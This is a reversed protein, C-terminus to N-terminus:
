ATREPLSKWDILGCVLGGLLASALPFVPFIFYYGLVFAGSVDLTSYLPRPYHDYIFLVCVGSLAAALIGMGIAKAIRLGPGTSKKRILGFLLASSVPQVLQGSAVSAYARETDWETAIDHGKCTLDTQCRLYETRFRKVM